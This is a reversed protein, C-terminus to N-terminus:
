YFCVWSISSHIFRSVYLFMSNEPTKDNPYFENTCDNGCIKTADYYKRIMKIAKCHAILINHNVQYLFKSYSMGVPVVTAVRKQLKM